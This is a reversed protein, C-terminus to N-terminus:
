KFNRANGNKEMSALTNLGDADIVVPIKYKDLIYTLIKKNQPNQGWGMGIALAKLKNLAEDIINKNEDKLIFITQELLYPAIAHAVEETVIVRVIRM